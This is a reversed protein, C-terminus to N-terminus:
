LVTWDKGRDGVSTGRGDRVGDGLEEEEGRLMKRRAAMDPARAGRLCMVCLKGGIMRSGM